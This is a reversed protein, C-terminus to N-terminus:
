NNFTKIHMDTMGKSKLYEQLEVAAQGGKQAHHLLTFGHPGVSNLLQPYKELMPKVLSTEGLMTLVFIDARAGNELLYLAIDRLGMHGAAGIATEFDGNGWDYAANIIHPFEGLIDKVKNFDFHAVRVFEQVKETPIPDAAMVSVPNAGVLTSPLVIVPALISTQRLFDRRNYDM